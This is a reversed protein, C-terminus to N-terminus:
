RSKNEEFLKIIKPVLHLDKIYKSYVKMYYSLHPGLKMRWLHLCWFTQKARGM